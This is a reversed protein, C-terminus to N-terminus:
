VEMQNVMSILKSMVEDRQQYNSVLAKCLNILEQMEGNDNRSRELRSTETGKLLWEPSVEPFAKVFKLLFKESLDASKAWSGNSFGCKEEFTQVNMKKAKRFQEIRDKIEM